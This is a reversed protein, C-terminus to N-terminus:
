QLRFVSRNESSQTRLAFVGLYFGAFSVSLTVPQEQVTRSFCTSEEERQGRVHGMQRTPGSSNAAQVDTRFALPLAPDM